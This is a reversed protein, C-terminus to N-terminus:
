SCLLSKHLIDKDFTGLLKQTHTHVKNLYLQRRTLIMWELYITCHTTHKSFQAVMMITLKLVDEAGPLFGVGWSTRMGDM